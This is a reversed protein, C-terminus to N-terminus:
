SVPEGLCELYRAAMAEMSFDRRVHDVARRAMSEARAANAACDAMADAVHRASAEEPLLWGTEGDRVLEGTGGSANAIVPIGAAMAELVANPCGQHTGLVVAASFAEALHELGPMAGRFRVPAASAREVLESAYRAHRPEAQGVIHLEGTPAPNQQYLQVFADVITELRKSPAIRGNVLFRPEGPRASRSASAAIGNPIVRMARSPPHRDAHHKLVLVDLREYYADVSSTITAAFAAEREIEEFAYAGPSADVLRLTAPAFKAVLLKVRPDANWFCLTRAGARQVEALLSEALAFPDVSPAPRFADVRARRLAQAFADQTSDGCVAVRFSHRPALACALNVLSRQAGGANLNATVFFTAVGQGERPHWANAVSWVRPARPIPVLALEARVAHSAVSRAIEDNSSEAPLLTLRGHGIESQGGVDLAVVPLGAALAERAAMSLGEYRSACLIVDCAAYWSAIPDVFGPLKVHNALELDAVRGLFRDLEKLHGDDLVGGLVALAADGRRARIAALIDVARAFDKQPKFAGVVGVFLTAEDVNWAARLERRREADGALRHIAPVHRITSVPVRCGSELLEARVREACAIARPVCSAPWCAPDNRWGERTNHVCPITAVGADWLLRLLADDILHTSV